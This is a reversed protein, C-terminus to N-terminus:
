ERFLKRKEHIQKDSLGTEDIEYRRRKKKNIKIAVFDDESSITKPSNISSKDDELLLRKKYNEIELYAELNLVAIAAYDIDFHEYSGIDSNQLQNLQEFPDKKISTFVEKLFPGKKKNKIFKYATQIYDEISVLDTQIGKNKEFLVIKGNDPVLRRSNKKSKSRTQSEIIKEVILREKEPTLDNLLTTAQELSINTLDATLLFLPRQPFLEKDFEKVLGKMIENIIDKIDGQM